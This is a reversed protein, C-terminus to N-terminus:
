NKTNPSNPLATGCTTVTVPESRASIPGPPSFKGFPAGSATALTPRGDAVVAAPSIAMARRCTHPLTSTRLALTNVIAPLMPPLRVKSELELDDNWCITRPFKPRGNSSWPFAVMRVPPPLSEMATSFAVSLFFRVMELPAPFSVISSALLSGTVLM